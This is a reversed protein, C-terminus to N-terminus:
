FFLYFLYFLYFLACRGVLGFRLGFCVLVSWFAFWFLGFRLGFRLGFCSCLKVLPCVFGPCDLTGICPFFVLFSCLVAEDAYARM